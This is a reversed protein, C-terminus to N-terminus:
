KELVNIEINAVIDKDLQVSAQYIGVSNIESPLIVKRKDLHIGTQTEFEECVQKSTIHGFAKGDAGMKIYINIYKTEIEAKLKEMLKKHNEADVKEQAKKAELAKINEESAVIALNNTLLFNGYGNAVEIIQDAQGKGKVDELLIIKMKEDGVNEFDRKLIEVLTDHVEEVTKDKIQCAASNLHGGGGMEEMIVQVNIGEEFSRASIGVLDENAIKGITFATDIGEITLLRESIKALRTRDVVEKDEPLSVLAFRGLLIEVDLVASALEQEMEINDRLLTRVLIMDAGLTKLTSAAEFTRSGTRFTFNNTDVIIGALMVSAEFPTLEINPNYFMFMESVLEVTSSVYTEVYSVTPNVFGSDSARHHDIIALNPIKALLEPFMTIRPSQTDCVILLTSAKAENMATEATIFANSFEKEENILRDYLKSVTIDCKTKELVLKVDKHSSTALRYLALMSGFADCDALNHTMIYVNSSSEVAEKLSMTQMRAIVLSNKELANTKGGFYQIKENQINVVVQDGGRKEALEIANQALSGLEDSEVDYCALGISISARLHNRTSIDRTNNLLDFKSEIMKDLSKRDLIMLLRDDSLTQLHAEHERVWDSIEGLFQGRINSKEQVDFRKLSEDLNDIVIFGIATVRDKYRKATEERQTEEFFYLINNENNHICDFYKDSVNLLLKEKKTKIEEILGNKIVDLSLDVLRSQFVSKSYNNAWKIEFKDDYVVIGIPLENFVEDGAQKVHYSINNWVDLRSELWKIKNVTKQYFFSTLFVSAVILFATAISFYVIGRVDFAKNTIFLYFFLIAVIFSVISVIFKKM